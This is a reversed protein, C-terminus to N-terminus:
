KRFILVNGDREPNVQEIRSSSPFISTDTFGFGQTHSVYGNEDDQSVCFCRLRSLALTLIGVIASVIVIALDGM